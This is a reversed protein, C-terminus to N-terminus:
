VYVYDYMCGDMRLWVHMCGHTSVCIFVCSGIFSNTHIGEYTSANICQCVWVDILVPIRVVM